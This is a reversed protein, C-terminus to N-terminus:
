DQQGVYRFFRWAGLYARQTEDLLPRTHTRLWDRRANGFQIAHAEFPRRFPWRPTGEFDVVGIRGGPVLVDLVRELAAEWAGILTLSYSMLVADFREGLETDLLDAAVVRVHPWSRVRRAARTAMADVCDLGVVRGTEGVDRALRPLAHGTGCGVDLVRDGERLGLDRVIQRRGFLMAARTWDYVEVQRTYLRTMDTASPLM